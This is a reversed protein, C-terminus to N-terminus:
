RCKVGADVRCFRLPFPRVLDGDFTGVLMGKLLDRADDSHGVDEFSETADKGAYSRFGDTEDQLNSPLLLGFCVAPEWIGISV